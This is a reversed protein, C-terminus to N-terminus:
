ASVYQTIAASQNAPSVATPSPCGQKKSDREKDKEKVSPAEATVTDM